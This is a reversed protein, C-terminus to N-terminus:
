DDARFVPDDARVIIIFTRKRERRWRWTQQFEGEFCLSRPIGHQVRDTYYAFFACSCVPVASCEPMGQVITQRSIGLRRSVFEKAEIAAPPPPDIWNIPNV